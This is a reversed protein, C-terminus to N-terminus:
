DFEPEVFDSPRPDRGEVEAIETVGYIAFAFVAGAVVIRVAPVVRAPRPRTSLAAGVVGVLLAGAFFIGTLLLPVLPVFALLHPFRLPTTEYFNRLPDAVFPIVLGFLLPVAVFLAVALWLPDLISFDRDGPNILIPTGIAAAALGSVLVRRSRRAPFLPRLVGYVWGGLAGFFLGAFIILGITGDASIKGIEEGADTFAGQVADNSTAAILRMALRGGIGFVLVGAIM